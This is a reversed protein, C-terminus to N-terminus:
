MELKMTNEKIEKMLEDYKSLLLSPDSMLDKSREFEENWKRSLEESESIMENIRNLIEKIEKDYTKKVYMKSKIKKIEDSLFIVGNTLIPASFENSFEMEVIVMLFIYAIFLLVKGIDAKGPQISEYDINKIIM